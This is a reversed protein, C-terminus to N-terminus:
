IMRFTIIARKRVVDIHKFYKWFTRFDRCGALNGCLFTKQQLLYIKCENRIKKAIVRKATKLRMLYKSSM